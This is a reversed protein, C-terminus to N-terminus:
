AAAGAATWPTGDRLMANLRVLLKRALALLAVMKPKGADVLRQRFAKAEGDWRSAVLAAMFLATRVRTRGGGIKSRGKYRGSQRTFPALGALAAIEKGSVRGLEPLEAIMMRSVKPGFGPATQILEDKARWPPSTEILKGLDRDLQALERDLTEIVAVISQKRRKNTARQLRVAEASRMATLEKHRAVLDAFATAEADPLPRAELKTADAFLAIVRADIADSKARQGIAEAFARVQKPNVVAVPVGAAALARVAAKEYGGSAEFVVIKPALAALRRTLEGLGAEDQAVAFAEGCTAGSALVHVDLRSKSVDIGVIFPADM